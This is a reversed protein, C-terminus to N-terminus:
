MAALYDFELEAKSIMLWEWRNLTMADTPIDGIKGGNSTAMAITEVASYIATVSQRVFHHVFSIWTLQYKIIMRKITTM